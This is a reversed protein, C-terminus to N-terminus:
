KIPIGIGINYVSYVLDVNNLKALYMKDGIIINYNMAISNNFPPAQQLILVFRLERLNNILTYNYYQINPETVFVNYSVMLRPVIYDRIFYYPLSPSDLIAIGSGQSNGLIHTLHISKLIEAFIDYKVYIESFYVKNGNILSGILIMISCLIVLIISLLKYNKIYKVERSIEM